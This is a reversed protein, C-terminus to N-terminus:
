LKGQNFASTVWNTGAARSNRASAPNPPRPSLGDTAVHPAIM